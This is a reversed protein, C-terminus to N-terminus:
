QSQTKLFKLLEVGACIFDVGVAMGDEKRTSAVFLCPIRPLPSNNAVMEAKWQAANKSKTKNSVESDAIMPGRVGYGMARCRGRDDPLLASIKEPQCGNLGLRLASFDSQSASWEPPPVFIRQSNRSLPAASKGPATSAVNGPKPVPLVLITEDQSEPTAPNRKIQLASLVILHLLLVLAAPVFRKGFRAM